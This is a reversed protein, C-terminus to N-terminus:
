YVSCSVYPPHGRLSKCMDRFRADVKYGRSVFTEQNMALDWTDCAPLIDVLCMQHFLDQAITTHLLRTPTASFANVTQKKQGLGNSM